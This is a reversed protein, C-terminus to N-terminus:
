EKGYLIDFRQLYIDNDQRGMGIGWEPVEGVHGDRFDDSRFIGPAAARGRLPNRATFQLGDYAYYLQNPGAATAMSGVGYSQPWVLVEHGPHLPNKESRMFPGTPSAGVAVGMQTKRPGADGHLLSRGKYYLWVKGERAILAADDVRMSDFAEPTDFAPELVPNGDFKRWPGDPSDAVAVGVATPTEADFPRPVGTYYLYFKGSRKLINPTFVGHASM